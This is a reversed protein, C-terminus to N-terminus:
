SLTAPKLSVRFKVRTGKGPASNIECAGGIERLRLNMSALGHGAAPRGRHNQRDFGVGNDAIELEFAAAELTLRIQVESAAAHKVVNNL